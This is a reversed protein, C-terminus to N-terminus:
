KCAALLQYIETTTKGPKGDAITKGDIKLVPLVLKTTSTIFAEKITPLQEMHIAAEKVDFGTLGLIRKRTIGKLINKAPTIVENAATVMFFNSRPCENIEGQQYYLVDDAHQAKIFPQLYIAQLYDITKVEPLQRQHEYTILRTGKYFNEKNFTFASQTILLNPNSLTYGDEAYGGTLTIRIGSGPLNNKEILQQIWEKIQERNIGNNLHMASASGFFRDLHDDLFRPQNDITIFFDFIGYGRQISLDTIGIKADTKLVLDGNIIAYNNIM